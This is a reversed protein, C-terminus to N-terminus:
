KTSRANSSSDSRVQLRPASCVGTRKRLFCLRSLRAAKVGIYVFKFVFMGQWSPQESVGSTHYVSVKFVPLLLSSALLPLLDGFIVLPCVTFSRFSLSGEHLFTRHAGRLTKKERCKNIGTVRVTVWSRRTVYMRLHACADM